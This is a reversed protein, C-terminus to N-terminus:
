YGRHPDVVNILPAGRVYRELNDLFVGIAGTIYDDWTMMLGNHPTIYVNDMGWLPNDMPFLNPKSSMWPLLGSM